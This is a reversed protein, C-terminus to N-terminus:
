ILLGAVVLGGWGWARLWCAFSVGLRGVQERYSYGQSWSAVNLVTGTNGGSLLGKGMAEATARLSPEGRRFQMDPRLSM